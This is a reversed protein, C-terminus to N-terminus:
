IYQGRGGVSTPLSFHSSCLLNKHWHNEYIKMSKWQLPITQSFPYVLFGRKHVPERCYKLNSMPLCAFMGFLKIIKQEKKKKMKEWWKGADQSLLLLWSYNQREKLWTCRNISHNHLTLHVFHKSSFLVYAHRVETAEYCLRLTTVYVFHCYKDCCLLWSNACIGCDGTRTRSITVLCLCVM